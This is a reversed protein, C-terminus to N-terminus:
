GPTAFIMKAGSTSTSRKKPPVPVARVRQWTFGLGKLFKRTQTQSRELGTLQKIRERAQAVTRVPEKELSERIRDGYAALESRPVPRPEWCRLGDLGNKRYAAVWRQVTVRDVELITAAQERTVGCHLLWIARMRQRIHPKPHNDREVRVASQEAESLQIRFWAM